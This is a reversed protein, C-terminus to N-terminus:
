LGEKWENLALASYEKAYQYQRRAYAGFCVGLSKKYECWNSWLLGGAAIYCYLKVRTQRDCNDQFYLDILDDAQRRDYGSYLIFMAVDLHPDQMGAYEWDIMQIQEEGLENKSILFNDPVADIHTLCFPETTKEIYPRLRLVNAKTEAYDEYASPTGNRLSEYFDIQGFLDFTHEVQLRMAHFARLKAMCSRVDLRDSCTRAGDRYVTLKCGTTPDLWIPDDCLGKGSIAAYVAAEQAHDVLKDTGEGPVRLIYRKERCSFLYSRNTLGKKLPTIDAIEDAAASLKEAAAALINRDLETEM